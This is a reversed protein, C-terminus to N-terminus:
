QRGGVHPRNFQDILRSDPYKKLLWQPAAATPTCLVIKLGCKDVLNMFIDYKEFDYKGEEKEFWNWSFEGFRICHLGSKKILKLDREWDEQPWHDPYYSVGGLVKSM